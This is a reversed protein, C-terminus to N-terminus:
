ESVEVESLFGTLGVIRVGGRCNEGKEEKKAHGAAVRSLVAERIGGWAAGFKVKEGAANNLVM